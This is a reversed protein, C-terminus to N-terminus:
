NEGQAHPKQGSVSRAKKRRDFLLGTMAADSREQAVLKVPQLRAPAPSHDPPTATTLCEVTRAV